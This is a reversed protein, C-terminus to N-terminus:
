KGSLLKEFSENVADSLAEVSIKKLEAIHEYVYKVYSSRNKNSRVKQPTLYPSDTEFLIKDIPVYKASDQINETKKYTVNGAFSIYYGMDLLIKADHPTGSFCHIIAREVQNNRLISITDEIANRSHVIIPLNLEKAIQIQKEFLERQIEKNHKMWHYDLGTEGLAFVRDRYDSNKLAILRARVGDIQEDTYDSAPHIGFAIYVFEHKKFFDEAWDFRDYDVSVQVAKHIGNERMESIIMNEDLNYEEICIDFHAHTDILYEM